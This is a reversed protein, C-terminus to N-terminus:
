DPTSLRSDPTKDVAARALGHLVRSLEERRSMVMEASPSPLYGSRNAIQIQTELELLSARAILVHNAFVGSSRRGQGEAINSPISVGARRMQVTLGFREDAPFDKTLRYVDEVLDMAIKWAALDRYSL